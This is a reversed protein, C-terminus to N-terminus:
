RTPLYANFRVRPHESKLLLYVGGKGNRAEIYGEECRLVTNGKLEYERATDTWIAGGAEWSQICLIYYCGDGNLLEDIDIQDSYDSDLERIIPKLHAEQDM